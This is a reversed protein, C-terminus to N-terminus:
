STSLCICQFSWTAMELDLFKPYKSKKKDTQVKQNKEVFTWAALMILHHTTPVVMKQIVFACLLFPGSLKM